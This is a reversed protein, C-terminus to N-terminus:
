IGARALQAQIMQELAAEGSGVTLLEFSLKRGGLAARASDLSVIAPPGPTYGPVGPLVPGTAETGFGYLYGNVIENRDLAFAVGQRSALDNFPPVRTNFM